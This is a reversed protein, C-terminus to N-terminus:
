LEQEDVIVVGMGKVFNNLEQSSLLDEDSDEFDVKENNEDGLNEGEENCKDIENTLLYTSIM